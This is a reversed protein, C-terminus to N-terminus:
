HQKGPNINEAMPLFSLHSTMPSMTVTLAQKQELYPLGARLLYQHTPNNKEGWVGVSIIEDAQAKYLSLTNTLQLM